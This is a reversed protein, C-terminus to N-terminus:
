EKTGVSRLSVRDNGGSNAVRVTCKAEAMSNLVNNGGIMDSLSYLMSLASAPAESVM